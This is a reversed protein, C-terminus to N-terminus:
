ATMDSIGHGHGLFWVTIMFVNTGNEMGLAMDMYAKFFAAFVTVMHYAM